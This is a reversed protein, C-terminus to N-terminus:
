RRGDGAPRAKEFRLVTGPPLKQLREIRLSPKTWDVALVVEVKDGARVGELSAAPAVDFPMVMADMGVAVGEANVFADIAEHRLSLQRRGEPGVSVVEGRVTYRRASASADAAPEGGRCGAALLLAASALACAAARTTREVM